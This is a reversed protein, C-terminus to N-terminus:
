KEFNFSPDSIYVSTDKLLNFHQNFYKNLVVRFTNVPTMSDYLLDYQKDSFYYANLNQFIKNKEKKNAFDRFGHDGELIVVYPRKRERILKDLIQEIMSNTYITQEVFKGKPNSTDLLLSDPQRNGNAKFLYPKHPLMIHCYVFHPISGQEESVSGLETVERTIYNNIYEERQKFFSGPIHIKGTWLNKVTFNWLLYTNFRCLLTQEDILREALYNFIPKIIAPHNRLDFVSYNYIRYGEKELILPLESDYVSIAGQLMHKASSEEPTADKKLYNMNLTSAISIPTLPYNSRSHRSIFFGKSTLLSDLKQNSYDFDNLLCESSTYSDFVIFFIDPKQLGSGAGSRYHQLGAEVINNEKEKHFIINSLVYFLEWVFLISVVFAAFSFLVHNGKIYKKIVRIAVFSLLGILLFIFTHSRFFPNKVATKLTDHFAGFFLFFIMLIFTFFSSQKFNRFYFWSVFRLSAAILLYRLFLKLAMSVPVLGYNANFEHLVFYLILFVYAFAAYKNLFKRM